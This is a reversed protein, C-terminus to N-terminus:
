VVKPFSHTVQSILGQEGFYTSDAKAHIDPLWHLWFVNTPMMIWIMIYGLFIVSSLLKIALQIRKIQQHTMREIKVLDM